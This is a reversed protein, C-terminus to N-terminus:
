TTAKSLAAYKSQAQEFTTREPCICRLKMHGFTQRDRGSFYDGELTTADPSLRLRNLGLHPHMTDQAGSKPENTYEFTLGETIGPTVNIVAM